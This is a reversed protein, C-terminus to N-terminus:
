SCAYRQYIRNWVTACVGTVLAIVALGVLVPRLIRWLGSYWYLGYEREQHSSRYTYLRDPNRM